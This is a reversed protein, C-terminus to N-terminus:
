ADPNVFKQQGAIRLVILFALREPTWYFLRFPSLRAVGESDLLCRLDGLYVESQGWGKGTMWFDSVVFCHNHEFAVSSKHDSGRGRVVLHNDDNEILTIVDSHIACLDRIAAKLERWLIPKQQDIYAKVQQAEEVTEHKQEREEQTKAVAARIKANEYSIHNV